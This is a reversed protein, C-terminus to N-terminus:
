KEWFHGHTYEMSIKLGLVKELPFTFYFKFYYQKSRIQRFLHSVFRNKM